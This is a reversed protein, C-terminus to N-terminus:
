KKLSKGILWGCYAGIFGPALAILSGFNHTTLINFFPVWISVFLAILWPKKGALFGCLVAAGLILFVSIGTDDWGPSTDMWAIAIGLVVSLILSFYFANKM